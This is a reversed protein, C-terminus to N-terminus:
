NEVVELPEYSLTDLRPEKLQFYLISDTNKWEESGFAPYPNDAVFTTCSPLKIQDIIGEAWSGLAIATLFVFLSYVKKM